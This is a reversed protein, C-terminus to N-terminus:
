KQQFNECAHKSDPIKIGRECSTFGFYACDDCYNTEKGITFQEKYDSCAKTNGFEPTKHGLKCEYNAASWDKTQYHSCDKCYRKMSGYDGFDRSHVHAPTTVTAGGGGSGELIVSLVIWLIGIVIIIAVVVMFAYYTLIAVIGLLYLYASTKAGCRVAENKIYESLKIIENLVWLIPTVWYKKIKGKREEKKLAFRKNIVWTDFKNMGNVFSNTKGWHTVSGILAGIILPILYFIIAGLWGGTTQSIRRTEQITKSVPKAIEKTKPPPTTKEVVVAQVEVRKPEETRPAQLPEVKKEVPPAIEDLKTKADIREVPGVEIKKAQIKEEAPKPQEQRGVPSEPVAQSLEGAQKEGFIEPKTEQQRKVMFSQVETPFGIAQVDGQVVNDTSIRSIKFFIAYATGIKLRKVKAFEPSVSIKRVLNLVVKNGAQDRALYVRKAEIREIIELQSIMAIKGTANGSDKIIDSLNYYDAKKAAFANSTTLILLGLLVLSKLRM